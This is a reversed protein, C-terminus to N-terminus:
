GKLAGDLMGQLYYKMGATTIFILPITGLVFFAALKGLDTAGNGGAANFAIQCFTQLKAEGSLVITPWIYDNYIAIMSTIGATILIPKSLPLAIKVFLYMENAGDIRGAEFMEEPLAAFFARTMVIGILQMGSIYPVILALLSGDWGFSNVIQYTPIIMLVGPIMFVLLTINYFFEKGIFNLRGYAYGALSIVVTTCLITVICVFLSNAVPRLVDKFASIYNYFYNFRALSLFDTQIIVNPKLSMNVLTYLPYFTTVILIIIIARSICYRIGIRNKNKSVISM